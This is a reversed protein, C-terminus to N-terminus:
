WVFYVFFDGVKDRLLFSPRSVHEVPFTIYNCIVVVINM